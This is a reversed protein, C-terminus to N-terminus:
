KGLLVSNTSPHQLQKLADQLVPYQAPQFFTPQIDTKITFVYELAGIPTTGSQRCKVDVTSGGPARWNFKAPTMLPKKYSPPMTISIERESQSYNSWLLPSERNEARACRLVAAAPNNLTFYCFQGDECAFHDVKLTYSIEGPYHRFDTKIDQTVPRANQSYDSILKQYHRNRKEATLQTYFRKLTGFNAGQISTVVTVLASGDDEIRISQKEKVSDSLHAPLNLTELTGNKLRLLLAHNYACTGFQGYQTQDNLWIIGFPTNVRILWKKFHWSEPYKAAIDQLEPTYLTSALYFETKTFGAAKLLAYYLIAVDASNGYGDNLTTEATSICNLPLDDFDPETRRINLEIFERINVLTEEDNAGKLKAALQTIAPSSKECLPTVANRIQEAYKQWSSASFIATPTFTYLPPLNDEIRVRRTNEVEWGYSIRGDALEARLFNVKQNEDKSALKLLGAPFFDPKQKALSAPLILTYKVHDAPYHARLSGIFSFFSRNKMTRHLSYEITSGPEVGPFNVVYIKGAPYRPAGGAWAADMRHIMNASLSKTGSKTIVRGATLEIEDWVPNYQWTRDSNAKVGNYTLVQISCTEDYRWNHEDIMEVTIEQNRVIADPSDQADRADDGDTKADQKNPNRKFIIQKRDAEEFKSLSEKIRAYETPTYSVKRSSYESTYFLAGETVSLRRQWYLAGNDVSEYQPVSTPILSEPMRLSIQERIGCTFRANYPFRRVALTADNFIFNIMGFQNGIRPIRMMAYNQSNNDGNNLYDPVEATIVATFQKTMDQLNEPYLALSKLSCGPLRQQLIKEFVQRREDPQINLMWSRYANDNIGNFVLESM